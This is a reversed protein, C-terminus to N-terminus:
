ADLEVIIKRLDCEPSLTANEAALIDCFVAQIRYLTERVNAGQELALVFGDGSIELTGGEIHQWMVYDRVGFADIKTKM